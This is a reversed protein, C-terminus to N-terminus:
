PFCGLLKSDILLRKDMVPFKFTSDSKGHSHEVCHSVSSALVAKVVAAPLRRQMDSSLRNSKLGSAATLVATNLHIHPTCGQSANEEGVPKSHSWGCLLLKHVSRCVSAASNVYGAGCHTHTDPFLEGLSSSARWSSWSPLGREEGAICGTAM